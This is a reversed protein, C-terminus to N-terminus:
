VRRAHSALSLAMRGVTPVWLAIAAAVERAIAIAPVKARLRARLVEVPKEVAHHLVAALAFSAVVIIWFSDRGRPWIGTFHAYVQMAPFHVIYILYSYHGLYADLAVKRSLQILAPLALISAFYM